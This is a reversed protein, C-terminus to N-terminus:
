GGPDALDAAELGEDVVGLALGDALRCGGEPHVTAQLEAPRGVGDCREHALGHLLHAAVAEEEGVTLRRLM